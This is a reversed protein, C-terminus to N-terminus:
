LDPLAISMGFSLSIKDNFAFVSFMVCHYIILAVLVHHLAKPALKGRMDFDHYNVMVINYKDM